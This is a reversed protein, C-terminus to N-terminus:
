TCALHWRQRGDSVTLATPPLDGYM